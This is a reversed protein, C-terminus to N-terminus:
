FEHQYGTDPLDRREGALGRIVLGESATIVRGLRVAGAPLGAGRVTALM